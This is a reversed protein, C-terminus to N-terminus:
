GRGGALELVFIWSATGANQVYVTGLGNLAKFQTKYRVQGSSGTVPTTDLYVGVENGWYHDAASGTSGNLAFVSLVVPSQGPVERVLRLGMVENGGSKGCAAQVVIVLMTAPPFKPAVDIYLGTDAYSTSTSSLATGYSNSKVSVVNFDYLATLQGLVHDFANRTAPDLGLTSYEIM